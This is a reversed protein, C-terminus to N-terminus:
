YLDGFTLPSSGQDDSSPPLHPPQLESLPHTSSLPDSLHSTSNMDLSNADPPKDSNQSDQRMMNRRWKARANQFWVQLVRKSLGTKQALQKLDKADPNQNLAFYSKMTRLQHHKFSTRMRKTRTPQLPNAGPGSPPPPTTDYGSSQDMNCLDSASPMIEMGPTMVALASDHDVPIKRKRPRGKQVAGVGNYYPMRGLSPTAYPSDGGPSTSNNVLESPTLGAITPDGLPPASSLPAAPHPLHPHHGILEYHLRCYVMSNKMGFHDGKTLPKNCSACTFCHVHYVLDRARMVLESSSIGLHCRACRKVAFLRFYDEKCYIHGDRAFCTLESDLRLQCESCKLCHIHWQQDVALLYFRDVIKDGCGACVSPEGPSSDEASIVPM